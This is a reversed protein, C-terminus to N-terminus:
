LYNDYFFLDCSKMRKNKAVVCSFVSFLYSSRVLKVNAVHMRIYSPPQGDDPFHYICELRLQRSTRLENKIHLLFSTTHTRTHTHIAFPLIWHSFCNIGTWPLRHNIPNRKCQCNSLHSNLGCCCSSTQNFLLELQQQQQDAAQQQQEPPFPHHRHTVEIEEEAPWGGGGGRAGTWKNQQQQQQLQMRKHVTRTVTCQVWDNANTAAVSPLFFFFVLRRLRCGAYLLPMENM